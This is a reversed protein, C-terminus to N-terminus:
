SAPSTPPRTSTALTSPALPPSLPSPPPSSHFPLCTQMPMIHTLAARCTFGPDFVLADGTIHWHLVNLKSAAMADLNKKILSVSLFHRATDMLLGRFPFRPYDVIDQKRVTYDGQLLQTFTELGRVAGYVTDSNLTADPFSINLTYHESTELDLVEDASGVTVVLRQLSETSPIPAAPCPPTVCRGAWSPPEPPRQFCLARYRAIASLLIPSSSAPGDEVMFQFADAVVTGVVPYTKQVQPQPWVMANEAVPETVTTAPAAALHGVAAGIVVFIM